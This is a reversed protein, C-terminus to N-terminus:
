DIDYTDTDLVQELEIIQLIETRYKSYNIM